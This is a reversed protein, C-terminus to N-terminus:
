HGGRSITITYGRAAIAQILDDLTVAALAGAPSVSPASFSPITRVDAPKEQPAASASAEGLMLSLAIQLARVHQEPVSREKDAGPQKENGYRVLNGFHSLSILHKVPEHIQSFKLRRAKRASQIADIFDKRLPGGPTDQALMKRGKLINGFHKKLAYIVRFPL